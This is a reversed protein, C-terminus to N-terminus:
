SKSFNTYAFEGHHKLALSDYAKAAEEETSFTGGEYRRGKATIRARYGSNSPYVGKYKRGSQPGTNAQNEGLTAIRLNTIRNDLRDRNIHDIYGKPWEGYHLFWALRHALYRKGKYFCELYGTSRISGQVKGDSRTIKGTEPSYSLEASEWRGGDGRDPIATPTSANVRPSKTEVNM